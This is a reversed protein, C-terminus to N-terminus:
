PAGRKLLAGVPARQWWKTHGGDAEAHLVYSVFATPLDHDTDLSVDRLFGWSKCYLRHAFLSWSSAADGIFMQIRHFDSGSLRYPVFPRRRHLLINRGFRQFGQLRAEHYGGALPIAIARSWPHDHLGRDPDPRLYHHLYITWGFLQGVYYREFLPVQTRDTDSVEAHIIRGPLRGAWRYLLRRLM